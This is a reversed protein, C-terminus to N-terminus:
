VQIYSNGDTGIAMTVYTFDEGTQKRHQEGAPMKKMEVAVILLKIDSLIIYQLFFGKCVNGCRVGHM